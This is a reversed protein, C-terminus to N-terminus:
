PAALLAVRDAAVDFGLVPHRDDGEPTMLVPKGLHRGIARLFGCLLNLQQQGQLERLDIDFDITEDAYFRFIALFKPTPWVRLVPSATGSLSSLESAQPLRLAINDVSYEYRWGKTRILDFVAQWDAVSTGPVHVDPLVGNIEPDLLSGVQDWLLDTPM